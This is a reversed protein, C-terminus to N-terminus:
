MIVVDKNLKRIERTAQLGDMVPLRLDMLILDIDNNAQLVEIAEAGTRARLVQRCLPRINKTLLIESVEDDEVMLIKLKNEDTEDKKFVSTKLAQPLPNEKKCPLEFRLISGVNEESEVWIRGGLMEVYAKSIALGLGAGQYAMRDEIDAQVFREFIAQQRDKPIGIGTDKVYFELWQDNKRICGIEIGGNHTYKIANKVLNTLIAYLKEKDTVHTADEDPLRDTIEIRLGKNRAEQYFFEHIYEIQENLNSPATRIDVQGSEIRSIDIIDNIINLMRQGSKNIMAIYQDKMDSSLDPEQLLEAFGLIGNMPTRIEHSMNALFASKLRDSEEAKEKAAKLAEEAQKRDTIDVIVGVYYLFKGESDYIPSVTAQAWFFSGDKRLYRKETRYADLERRMLRALSDLDKPLDDPHTIKAFTNMLLEEEGLGTMECFRRNVKIFRFEANAMVMGTAGDEFIKRFRAESEELKSIAEIQTTIDLHIGLTRDTLAGDRDRLTQGRSWIWAYEGNSRRMRFVNEYMGMAGQDLYDQFVKESRKRDEPHMLALWIGDLSPEHDKLFEEKSYGLHEFYETSCWLHGSNGFYEWAGINSSAIVSKFREESLGLAEEAQKRETINRGFCSGGIVQGDKLIPNFTVEIYIKGIATDVEDVITFRENALVKDYRPKWFPRLMEPLGQLLNSGKELWVGFADYFDRQFVQNIYLINYNRDFAWISDSTGEIIATVNANIEEAKEKAEILAEESNHHKTIDRVTGVSHLPRGESDRQTICQEVVYKVQGNSLQIRHEIEYPTMNVLSDTYAKHVKERDDPHVYSLFAEYSAPFQGPEVGFIRFVEDSWYLKNNVLDLKWHGIGALSEALAFDSLTPTSGPEAPQTQENARASLSDPSTKESATRLAHRVMWSLMLPDPPMPLLGDFDDEPLLSRFNGILEPRYCAILPIGAESATKRVLSWENEQFGADIAYFILDPQVAKIKNAIADANGDAGVLLTKATEGVPVAELAKLDKERKSIVLITMETKM